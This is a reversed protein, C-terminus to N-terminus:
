AGEQQWTAWGYERAVGKSRGRASVRDLRRELFRYEKYNTYYNDSRALSSQQIGIRHRRAIVQGIGSDERAWRVLLSTTEACRSCLVATHNAIGAEFIWDAMICMGFGATTAVINAPASVWAEWFRTWFRTTLLVRHWLEISFVVQVFINISM